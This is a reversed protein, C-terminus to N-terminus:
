NNNTSIVLDTQKYNYKNFIALTSLHIGSDGDFVTCFSWILCCIAVKDNAHNTLCVLKRANRFYIFTVLKFSFKLCFLYHFATELLMFYNTNEFIKALRFDTFPDNAILNVM